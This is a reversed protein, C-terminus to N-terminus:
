CVEEGNVIVTVTDTAPVRDIVQVDAALEAVSGQKITSKRVRGPDDTTNHRPKPLPTAFPLAPRAEPLMSPILLAGQGLSLAIEFRELLQMYQALYNEPYQRNGRFIFKLHTERLIGNHVFNQKQPVTIIHALMDALWVPDIFYLNNLGKLYDNYHLLVGNDHLFNAATIFSLFYLLVCLYNNYLVDVNDNNIIIKSTDAYLPVQTYRDSYLSAM